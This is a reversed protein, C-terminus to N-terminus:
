RDSYCIEANINKESEKRSTVNYMSRWRIEAYVMKIPEGGRERKTGKEEWYIKGM